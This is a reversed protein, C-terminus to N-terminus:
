GGNSRVQLTAALEPEASEAWSEVDLLPGGVIVRESGAIRCSVQGIRAAAALAAGHGHALAGLQECLSRGERMASAGDHTLLRVGLLSRMTRLALTFRAELLAAEVDDSLPLLAELAEDDLEEGAGLEVYVALARECTSADCAGEDVARTLAELLEDVSAFRASPQKEMCRLVVADVAPGVPALLSPRPAPATLHLLAVRRTDDGDFPFQGTLLQFLMVGLAYVDTRADVPESRLQEPAMTHASGIVAGPETLGQGQSERQVLKAIGFDLLKVTRGGAGGGVIVNTAKLDRHVVGAAHAASVAECIPRMLELVEGTSMRGYRGLLTRLDVGEVLEMVYYPRGPALEGVAHLAVINPHALRALLEVERAFRALMVPFTAMEPRLVKIAVREESNAHSAAYVVGGGGGGRVSALVYDGIRTGEPLTHEDTRAVFTEPGLVETADSERPSVIKARVL